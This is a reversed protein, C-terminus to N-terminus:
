VHTPGQSPSRAKLMEDALRYAHKAVHQFYPRGDLSDNQCVELLGNLAQGAFWDRLFMGPMNLKGGEPLAIDAPYAPGSAELIYKIVSENSREAV